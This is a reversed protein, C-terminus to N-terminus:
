DCANSRLYLARQVDRCMDEIDRQPVWSLASQLRDNSCVAKMKDGPRTPGWVYEIKRGMLREMTQVLTLTSTGCGTGVNLIHFGKLEMAKIHADALDMVHIYDRIGTPDDVFLPFTYLVLPENHLIHKCIKPMINEGKEDMLLGSPHNGIPNFYRLITTNLQNSVHLDYLVREIIFKSFSYPTSPKLTANEDLLEEKDCDYVAATSSFVFDKINYKLMCKMLNLTGSVNTEYYDLPHMLSAPISKLAALHIVKTITNAAFVADLADYDNIDTQCFTFSKQTITEITQIVHAESNSLNDIGVVTLGQNLLTIVLHSGIYGLAGTVLVTDTMKISM